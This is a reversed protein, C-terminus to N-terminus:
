WHFFKFWPNWGCWELICFVTYKKVELEFKRVVIFIAALCKELLKLLADLESALPLHLINIDMESKVIVHTLSNAKWM